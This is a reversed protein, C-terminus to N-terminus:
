ENRLMRTHGIFTLVNNAITFQRSDTGYQLQRIAWGGRSDIINVAIINGKGYEFNIQQLTDIVRCWYASDTVPSEDYVFTARM